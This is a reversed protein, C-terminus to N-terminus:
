PGKRAATADAVLVRKETVAVWRAPSNQSQMSIWRYPLESWEVVHDVRNDLAFDGDSTHAILVLHGEGLEDYAAALLLSDAPWGRAMLAQRKTLAYTNCDGAGDRAYDWAHSPNERPQITQNTALQVQEAEARREATFAILSPHPSSVLCEQSHRVCFGVFGAPPIVANGTVIMTGPSSRTALPLRGISAFKMNLNGGSGYNMDSSCASLAAASFAAICLAAFGRLRLFTMVFGM